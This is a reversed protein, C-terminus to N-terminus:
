VSIVGYNILTSITLTAGAIGTLTSIRCLSVGNQALHSGFM